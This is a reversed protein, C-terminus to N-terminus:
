RVERGKKGKKERKKYDHDKYEERRNGCCCIRTPCGCEECQMYSM